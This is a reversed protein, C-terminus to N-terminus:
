AYLAYRKQRSVQMPIKSLGWVRKKSHIKEFVGRKLTSIKSSGGVVKAHPDISYHVSGLLLTYFHIFNDFSDEM